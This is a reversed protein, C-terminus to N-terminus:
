LEIYALQREGNFKLRRNIELFVAKAWNIDTNNHRIWIIVGSSPGPMINIVTADMDEIVTAIIEAQSIAVSKIARIM